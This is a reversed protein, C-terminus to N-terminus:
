ALYAKESGLERHLDRLGQISAADGRVLLRVSGECGAVGGSAVHIADAGFLTRMAEIETFVDGRVPYM